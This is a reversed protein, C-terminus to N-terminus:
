VYIVSFKDKYKREPEVEGGGEVVDGLVEVGAVEVRAAAGVGERGPEGMLFTGGAMGARLGVVVRVDGPATPPPPTIPAAGLVALIMAGVLVLRIPFFICM